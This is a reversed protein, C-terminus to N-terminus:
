HSSNLRTSKRDRFGLVLDAAHQAATSVHWVALGIIKSNGAGLLDRVLKTLNRSGNCGQNKGDAGNSKKDTTNADHVDHQHGDRLPGALDAHALGDARAATVDDPLKEGFGHHEGTRSTDDAHQKAAGDTQKDIKRDGSQWGGNWEPGNHEGHADGHADAQDESHVGGDLGGAEVGDFGQAVL